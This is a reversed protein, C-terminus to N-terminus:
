RWYAGGGCYPRYTTRPGFYGNPVSYGYNSYPRYYPANYYSYYPRAGFYDDRPGYYYSRPGSYYSYSAGPAFPRRYVVQADAGSATVGVLVALLTGMLIFRKM